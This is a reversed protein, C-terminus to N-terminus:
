IVKKFKLFILLLLIGVMASLLLVPWLTLFMEWGNAVIVSQQGVQESLSLDSMIANSYYFLLLILALTIAVCMVVGKKIEMFWFARFLNPSKLDLKAAFLKTLASIWLVLLM